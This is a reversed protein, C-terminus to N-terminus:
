AKRILYTLAYFPPMNEHSGGGGQATLYVYHAHDPNWSTTFTHDHQGAWDTNANNITGAGTIRKGPGGVQASGADDLAHVHNGNPDVTGTHNHGGNYGTIGSNGAGTNHDHSPIDPITLTVRELGGKAALARATLGAPSGTGVVFRSRLDPVNFTTSNDGTGHATGIVAFLAAFATRSIASGDCLQWRSADYGAAGAFTIVQGVPSLDDVYKKTAPNNDGPPPTPFTKNTLAQASNQDVLDGTAGHASKTLLHTNLDSMEAASVTHEVKAQAPLNVPTTGDYGRGWDPITLTSSTINSTIASVLYKTESATGRGVTIVIASGTPITPWGLGSASGDVTLQFSGTPPVTVANSLTLPGATGSHTLQRTM